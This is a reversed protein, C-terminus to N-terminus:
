TDGPVRGSSGLEGIKTGIVGPDVILRRHKCKCQGCVYMSKKPSIFHRDVVASRFVAAIKTFIGRKAM